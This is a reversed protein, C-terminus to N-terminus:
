RKTSGRKNDPNSLVTIQIYPELRQYTSDALTYVAKLDEKRYFKKGSKRWKLLLRITHEKLGLHRWGISDLQNPDFYFLSDKTRSEEIMAKQRDEWAQVLAQEAQRDLDP